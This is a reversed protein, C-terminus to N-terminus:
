ITSIVAKPFRSQAYKRPDRHRILSTNLERPAARRNQSGIVIHSPDNFVNLRTRHPAFIPSIKPRTTVSGKIKPESVIISDYVRVLARGNGAATQQM